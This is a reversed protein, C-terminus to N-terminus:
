AGRSGCGELVSAGESACGELRQSKALRREGVHDVEGASWLARREETEGELADESGGAMGWGFGGSSERM